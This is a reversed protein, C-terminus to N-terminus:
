YIAKLQILFTTLGSEREICPELVLLPGNVVRTGISVGGRLTFEMGSNVLSAGAGIMPQFFFVSWYGLRRQAVVDFVLADVTHSETRQYSMSQIHGSTTDPVFITTTEVATYHRYGLSLGLTPAREADEQKVPYFTVVPSLIGKGAKGASSKLWLLSFDWIGRYSYGIGAGYGNAERNTSLLIEGELASQGRSVYEGQAHLQLAACHLLILAFFTRYVNIDLDERHKKRDSSQWNDAPLM